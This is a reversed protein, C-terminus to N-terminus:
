AIVGLLRFTCMHKTFDCECGGGRESQGGSGNSGSRRAAMTAVTASMAVAMATVAHMTAAMPAMVAPVPAMTMVAETSM